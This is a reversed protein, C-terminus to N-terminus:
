WRMCKGRMKMLKRWEQKKSVRLLNLYVNWFLFMKLALQEVMMIVTQFMVVVFKEAILFYLPFSFIFFLVYSNYGFEECPLTSYKTPLEFFCSSGVCAIDTLVGGMAAFM